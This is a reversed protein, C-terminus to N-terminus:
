PQMDFLLPVSNLPLKNGKDISLCHFMCSINVGYIALIFALKIVSLEVLILVCKM